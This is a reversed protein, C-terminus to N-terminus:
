QKADEGKTKAKGSLSVSGGSLSIKEAQYLIDSLLVGNIMMGSTALGSVDLKSKYEGKEYPYTYIEMNNNQETKGENIYSDNGFIMRHSEIYNAGGIYDDMM